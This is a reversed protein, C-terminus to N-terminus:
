LGLRVPELDMRLRYSFERRQRFTDLAPSPVVEIEESCIRTWGSTDLLDVLLNKSDPRAVVACNVPHVVGTPEDSDEKDPM